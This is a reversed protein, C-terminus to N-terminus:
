QVLVLERGRIDVRSLKSLFTMGLLTIFKTGPEGITAEVDHVTIDGIRIEDIVVPAARTTGNATRATLTYDSDKPEIGLRVADEYRLAVHTAGTDVLVEIARGNVYVEAFFHGNEAARLHAERLGGDDTEVAIAVTGDDASQDAIRVDEVRSNAMFVDAATSFKYFAAGTAGAILVWVALERFVAAVGSPVSM